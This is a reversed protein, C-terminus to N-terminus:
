QKFRLSRLDAALHELDPFLTSRTIGFLSLLQKLGSKAAKPIIFQALFKEKNSLEELPTPVGHLTFESLQVMMRPDTQPSGTAIIFNSPEGDHVGLAERFLTSAPPNGPFTNM